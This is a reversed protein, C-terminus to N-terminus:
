VTQAARPLWPTTRDIGGNRLKSTEPQAVSHENESLFRRYRGYRYQYRSLPKYRGPIEGPGSAGPEDEEGLEVEHGPM